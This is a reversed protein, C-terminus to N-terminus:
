PNGMQFRAELAAWRQIVPHIAKACETLTQKGVELKEIQKELDDAATCLGEANFRAVRVAFEDDSIDEREDGLSAGNNKSPKKSRNREPRAGPKDSPALKGLDRKVTDKSVGLKKAATTQNLGGAILMPVLVKRTEVSWPLQGHDLLNERDGLNLHDRVGDILKRAIKTYEEKTIM